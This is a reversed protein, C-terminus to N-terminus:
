GLSSFERMKYYRPMLLLRRFSAAPDQKRDGAAYHGDVEQTVM